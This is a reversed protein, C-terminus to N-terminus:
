VCCSIMQNNINKGHIVNIMNYIVNIMNYIVNIMNHIVNIMNYIVNIMNHIEHWTHRKDHPNPINKKFFHWKPIGLNLGLQTKISGLGCGVQLVPFIYFIFDPIM